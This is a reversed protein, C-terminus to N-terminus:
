IPPPGDPYQLMPDFSRRFNNMLACTYDDETMPVLCAVGLLLLMLMQLPLATKVVRSLFGPRQNQVHEIYAATFSFTCFVCKYLGFEAFTVVLSCHFGCSSCFLIETAHKTSVTMSCTKVSINFQILLTTLPKM